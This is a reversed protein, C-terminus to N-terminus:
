ASAAQGQRTPLCLGLGFNKKSGLVVPGSVPRPFRVRVHRSPLPRDDPKRRLAYGPLDPAGPIFAGQRLVEVSHPEPLGAMVCSAAVSAEIGEGNRKPFSDLVMPLATSWETSAATWREARAAKTATLEAAGQSLYTLPVPYRVTPVMLKRLGGDLRLLVALLAKRHAPDLDRPLAVGVARLRGDAHPHGVFPLTVFACVRRQDGPQKHGHVATMADVDHGAVDLMGSVKARLSATVKLTLSPDLSMGTPFAFTLFDAYPGDVVEADAAEPETCALRYPHPRAQQYAPQIEQHATRLRSLFGPYPARLYHTDHTEQATPVWDHWADGAPETDESDTASTSLLAHGGARGLYPVQRALYEIVAHVGPPPCHPWTFSVLPEALNRQPWAKQKGGNARGPLRAHGPKLPEVRNTPVWAQRPEAAELTRAPVRVVPPPQQELWTLAADHVPDDPDAVSVLACFLRYPHPPWEARTRDLTSARYSPHLLHADICLPM